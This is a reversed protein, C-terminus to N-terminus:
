GRKRRSVGALALIGVGLLLVSAPEPVATPALTVDLNASRQNSLSSTRGAYDTYSARDYISRASFTGLFLAALQPADVNASGVFEWSLNVISPDDSPTLGLPTIGTNQIPGLAWDAATTAISGSIYGAFDFITLLGNCVGGQVIAQCPTGQPTLRGSPELYVEYTWTFDNLGNATVLPDSVILLGASASTALAALCLSAAFLKKM